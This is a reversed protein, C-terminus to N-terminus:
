QGEETSQLVQSCFQFQECFEEVVSDVWNLKDTMDGDAPMEEEAYRNAFGTWHEQWSGSDDLEEDDGIVIRLLVEKLAQPIIMGIFLPDSNIRHLVEPIRSNVLLVPNDGATFEVAWIRQGLDRGKITMLSNKSVQDEPESPRIKDALALLRSFKEKSDVVKVRFLTSGSLNIGDLALSEPSVPNGVTGFDFRQTTDGCYAEVYIKADSEYEKKFNFRAVFSPIAEEQSKIEIEVESRDLKIRNTFNLRRRLRM